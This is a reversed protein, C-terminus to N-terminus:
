KIKYIHQPYTVRMEKDRNPFKDRYKKKVRDVFESNSEGMERYESWMECYIGFYKVSIFITGIDQKWIDM